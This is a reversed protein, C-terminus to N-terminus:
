ADLSLSWTNVTNMKMERDTSVLVNTWSATVLRTEMAFTHEVFTMLALNKERMMLIHELVTLVAM